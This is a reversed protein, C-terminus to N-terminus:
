SSIYPSFNETLNSSSIAQYIFMNYLLTLKQKKNQIIRLIMAKLINAFHEIFSFYGM